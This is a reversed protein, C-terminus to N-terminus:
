PSVRTSEPVLSFLAKECGWKLESDNILPLQERKSIGTDCNKPPNHIGPSLHLLKFPCNCCELLQHHSTALTSIVDAFCVTGSCRSFASCQTPAPSPCRSSEYFARTEPAHRTVPSRTLRTGSTVYRLTVYRLPHLASRSPRLGSFTHTVNSFAHAAPASGLLSRSSTAHSCFDFLILLIQM